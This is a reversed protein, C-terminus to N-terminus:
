VLLCPLLIFLMDIFKTHYSFYTVLKGYYCLIYEESAFLDLENHLSRPATLGSPRPEHEVPPFLRINIRRITQLYM